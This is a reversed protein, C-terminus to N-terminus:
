SNEVHVVICLILTPATKTKFEFGTVGALMVLGAGVYGRLYLMKELDGSPCNELVIYVNDPTEYVEYLRM